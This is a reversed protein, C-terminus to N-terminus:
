PRCTWGEQACLWKKFESEAQFAERELRNNEYILFAELFANTYQRGFEAISGLSRYQKVHYAEHSLLVLLDGDKDRYPRSLYIMNGFTQGAYEDMITIPWRDFMKIDNLLSAQYVVQIDEPAIGWRKLWPGLWKAQYPTLRQAKKQRRVLNKQVMEDALLPFTRYGWDGADMTSLQRLTKGVQSNEDFPDLERWDLALSTGPGILLIALFIIALKFTPISPQANM